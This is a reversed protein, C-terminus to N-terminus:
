FVVSFSILWVMLVHWVYRALEGLLGSSKFPSDGSRGRKLGLVLWEHWWFGFGDGSVTGKFLSDLCIKSELCVLKLDWSLITLFVNERQQCKLISYLSCQCPYLNCVTFAEQFDRLLVTYYPVVIKVVQNHLGKSPQM